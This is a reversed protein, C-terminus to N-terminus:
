AMAWLCAGIWILLTLILQWDSYVADTPSEGGELTEVIFWYRFLGYLVFPITIVMSPRETMVFLSYFLLAGVASMEAYRDVLSLSYHQLVKRGESGSKMLEQRRKIAALYLALCLTTVCMWSSVPVSLAVAGAYVRLVFGLAICFIDIVPQHKLWFTYALNLCLYGIIVFIVKPEFFYGLVLTLYLFVLALVAQSVTVQGSALPRSLAKKPHQRDQEIDHIDNIIYTASSAVCFLAAASLAHLLDASNLFLGTFLLPALVFANKIWQKPRILKILGMLVSKNEKSPM